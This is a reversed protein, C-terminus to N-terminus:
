VRIGNARTIGGFSGLQGRNGARLREVPVVVCVIPGKRGLCAEVVADM